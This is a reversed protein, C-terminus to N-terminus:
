AHRDCISPEICREVRVFFRSGDIVHCVNLVRGELGLASSSCPGCEAWSRTLLGGPAIPPAARTANARECM